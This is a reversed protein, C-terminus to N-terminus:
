DDVLAAALNSPSLNPGWLRDRLSTACVKISRLRGISLEPVQVTRLSLRVGSSVSITRGEHKVKQFM